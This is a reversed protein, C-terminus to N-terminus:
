WRIKIYLSINNSASDKRRNLNNELWKRRSLLCKHVRQEESFRAGRIIAKLGSLASETQRLYEIWSDIRAAYRPIRTTFWTKVLPRGHTFLAEVFRHAMSSRARRSGARIKGTLSYHNHHMVQEVARIILTEIRFSKLRTIESQRREVM